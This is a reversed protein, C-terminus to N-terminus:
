RSVLSPKQSRSTRRLGNLKSWNVDANVPRRGCDEPQLERPLPRLTRLSGDLAVEVPNVRRRHINDLWIRSVVLGVEVGHRHRGALHHPCTGSGCASQPWSSSASSATPPRTMAPRWDATRSSSPLVASSPTERPMSTVTSSPSSRATAGPPSSPPLAKPRWTTASSTPTTDRTPSCCAPNQAPNGSAGNRDTRLSSRRRLRSPM